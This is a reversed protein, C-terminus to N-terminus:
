NASIPRAEKQVLLWDFALKVENGTKILGLAIKPAPPEIHFDTMLISATGSIKLRNGELPLVNIPMSIVNTVGGVVLEGQTEFLYPVNPQAGARLRMTLLRYLIRPHTPANLKAYMIEDMKNSFPKGDKEVSKLGLM